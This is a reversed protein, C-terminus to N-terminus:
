KKTLDTNSMHSNETNHTKNQKDEDQTKNGM